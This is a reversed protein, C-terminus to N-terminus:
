ALGFAKKLQLESVSPGPRKCHRNFAEILAAAVEEAEAGEIQHRELMFVVQGDEFLAVSPSSSPHGIIYTRAKETAERDIGAFVTALHDPITKNQLALAVGPRASGASCGCVSNIVVLATGSKNAMFEEVENSNTLPKVGIDALEQWMPKAMEKDYLSQM